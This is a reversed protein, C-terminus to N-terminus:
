QHAKYYYLFKHSAQKVDLMEESLNLSRLFGSASPLGQKSRWVLKQHEKNEEM